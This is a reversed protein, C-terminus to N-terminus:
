PAVEKAEPLDYMNQRLALYSNSLEQRELPGIEMDLAATVHDMCLGFAFQLLQCEEAAAQPEQAMSPLLILEILSALPLLVRYIDIRRSLDPIGAREEYLDLWASKEESTLKPLVHLFIHCIERAPDGLGAMEWDLLQIRGEVLLCHELQIDGHILAPLTLENKDLEPLVLVEAHSLAELVMDSLKSSGGRSVGEEVLRKSGQILSWQYHQNVPHPSLRTQEGPQRAHAAALAVALKSTEETRTPDLPTGPCWEYLMVQHSLGHPYRDFTIPQPAVGIQAATDQNSFQRRGRAQGADLFMKLVIDRQSTQIRWLSNHDGSLEEVELIESPAIALQPSGLLYNQMAESLGTDNTM